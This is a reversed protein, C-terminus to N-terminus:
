REDDYYEERRILQLGEPWAGVSVPEIDLLGQLASPPPSQAEQLIDHMAERLFAKFEELSLDSIRREDQAM